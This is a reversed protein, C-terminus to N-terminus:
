LRFRSDSEVAGTAPVCGRVVPVLTVLPGSQGMLTYSLWAQERWRQVLLFFRAVALGSDAAVLDILSDAPAGEGALLALAARVGPGSDGVAMGGWPARLAPQGDPTEVVTVEPRLRLVLPLDM